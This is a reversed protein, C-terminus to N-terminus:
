INTCKRSIASSIAAGPVFARGSYGSFPSVRTVDFCVDLGNMWNYVLLYVPKLAQGEESLFGLAVEKRAAVGAKYCIDAVVDRVFDHRFKAGVESACHLAHDGFADMKRKCCACVEVTRFIPIGLRYCVVDRFHRPGLSQDLGTIPVEKLYEQAHDIKNSQWLIADRDSM